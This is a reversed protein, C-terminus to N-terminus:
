AATEVARKAVAARMLDAARQLRELEIPDHACFVSLRVPMETVLARLRNQNQIRADNDVAMQTQFTRLAAPCRPRRADVEGHHFYADGCHLLHRDGLDVAIGAHGASHGTLPVLLIEPPLGKLERVAEFGFYSAGDVDYTHFTPAHAWQVSKYRMKAHLSRRAVASEHEAKMVHVAAHPFDALGGAHDLDMHTLVIHRVDSSSFGLAEIQARATLHVDRQPRMGLMFSVGLRAYPTALDDSGLGTDVLVLGRETEILLCHCVLSAIGLSQGFIPCLTACSLHHVTMAM